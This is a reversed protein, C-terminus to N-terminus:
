NREFVGHTCQTCTCVSEHTYTTLMDRYMYLYYTFYTFLYYILYNIKFINVSGERISSFSIVDICLETSLILCICINRCSLRELNCRVQLTSVNQHLGCSSERSIAAYAAVITPEARGIIWTNRTRPSHADPGDPVRKIFLNDRRERTM